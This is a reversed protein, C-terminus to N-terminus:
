KIFGAFSIFGKNAKQSPKIECLDHRLRTHLIAGGAPSFEIHGVNKTASKKRHSKGLGNIGDAIVLAIIMGFCIAIYYIEM